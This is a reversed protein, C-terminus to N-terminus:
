SYKRRKIPAFVNLVKFKALATALWERTLAIKVHPAYRRDEGQIHESLWLKLESLLRRTVDVGREHQEVYQTIHNTFAEHTLRHADKLPYDAFVMLEEEFAFHTMTYDLLGILVQSVGVKDDSARAVELENIYDVIRRHQNDIADIGIALSDNWGWYQMTQSMIPGLDAVVAFQKM